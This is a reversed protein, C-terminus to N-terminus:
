NLSQLKKSLQKYSKDIKSQTQSEVQMWNEEVMFDYVERQMTSVTDYMTSIESYLEPTGAEQTFTNLLAKMHKLSILLNNIIEQDDYTQSKAM